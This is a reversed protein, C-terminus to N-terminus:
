AASVDLRHRVAKGANSERSFEDWPLRLEDQLFDKLERWIPSRGHGIFVRKKALEQQPPPSPEPAAPLEAQDAYDDDSALIRDVLPAKERGGADLGLERCVVQLDERPLRTLMDRFPIPAKALAFVHDKM